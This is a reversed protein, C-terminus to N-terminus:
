EGAEQPKKQYELRTIENIPKVSQSVTQMQKKADEVAQNQEM